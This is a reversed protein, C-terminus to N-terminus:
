DRVEVLVKRRRAAKREAEKQERVAAQAAAL